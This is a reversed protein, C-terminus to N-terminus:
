DSLTNLIIELNKNKKLQDFVKIDYVFNDFVRVKYNMKLLDETLISGIYGAGGILLTRKTNLIKTNKNRLYDFLNSTKTLDKVKGEKDIIPIYEPFRKSFNPRNIIKFVDNKKIPYSIFIPQSNFIKLISSNIEHGSIIARRIDPETIVGKFKKKNDIVILLGIHVKNMKNLANKISINDRVLFRNIIKKFM